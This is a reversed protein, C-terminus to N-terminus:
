GIQVGRMLLGDAALKPKLETEAAQQIEARWTSFIERVACRAFVKYIAGQAAPEVLKTGVDEPLSKALAAAELPDLACRVTLDAGLSFGELSQLLAAGDARSMALPRYSRDRLSLVRLRHVAPLVLVSGENWESASGTLQNIRVGVEGRGVGQVPPHMALLAASGVAVATVALPLAAKRLRLAGRNAVVHTEVRVEGFDTEPERAHQSRSVRRRRMVGEVAGSGSELWARARQWM